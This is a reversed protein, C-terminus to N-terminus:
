HGTESQELKAMEEPKERNQTREYAIQVIFGVLTLCIFSPVVYLSIIRATELM